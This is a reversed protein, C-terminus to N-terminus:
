AGGVGLVHDCTQSTGRTLSWKMAMGTGPGYIGDVAIDPHGSQANYWRQFAVVASRTASGYIGDASIASKVNCRKLSTQLATVGANASGYGLQCNYDGSRTPVRTYWYSSSIRLSVQSSSTCFPLAAQAPASVAVPMGVTVVLGLLATIIRTRM